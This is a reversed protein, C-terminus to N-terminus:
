FIKRRGGRGLSIRKPIQSMDQLLKEADVTMGEALHSEKSGYLNVLPMKKFGRRSEVRTTEGKDKKGQGSGENGSLREPSRFRSM